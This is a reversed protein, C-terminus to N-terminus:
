AAHRVVDRSGLWSVVEIRDADRFTIEQDRWLSVSSRVEGDVYRTLVALDESIIARITSLAGDFAISEPADDTPTDHSHWGGGGFYITVEDGNTDIALQRDGLPSMVEILLVGDDWYDGTPSSSFERWEPYKAFICSAFRRSFPSLDEISVM